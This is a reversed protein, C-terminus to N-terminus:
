EYSRQLKQKPEQILPEARSSSRVDRLLLIHGSLQLATIFEETRPWPTKVCCYSCLVLGMISRIDLSFKERQPIEGAKFESNCSASTVSTWVYDKCFLLAEVKLSEYNLWWLTCLEFQGLFPWVSPGLPISLSRQEKYFSKARLSGQVECGLKYNRWGCSHAEPWWSHGFRPVM